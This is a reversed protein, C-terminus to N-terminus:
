ALPSGATRAGGPAAGRRRAGPRRRGVGEDDHLALRELRDLARQVASRHLDLRTAIESLSAEPTERRAEAVARVTRPQEGLRGDTELTDIAALQRGSAAVSRKLNASEANLVRNLEGRMSRAVQRAELELLSASAGIRGLFAAISEASKWTVVGHGRRVRWSAPLGVDGLRGALERAEAVPVVFELHAHGSALSLSGRALYRGRLWAFRCHEPAGTWEFPQDPLTFSRRAGSGGLAHGGLRVVLRAVAPERTQVRPGLGAIEARRECPRSPDVAALEARLAAVLDRDTGSM